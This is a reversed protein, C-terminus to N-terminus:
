RVVGTLARASAVSFCFIDEEAWSDIFLGGRVPNKSPVNCYRNHFGLAMLCSAQARDVLGQGALWNSTGSSSLQKTKMGSPHNFTAWGKLTPYRRNGSQM